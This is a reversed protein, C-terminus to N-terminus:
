QDGTALQKLSQFDILVRKGVKKAKLKGIRIKTALTTLGLGSLKVAQSYTVALPEIESDRGAGCSHISLM